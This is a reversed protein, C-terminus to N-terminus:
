ESSPRSTEIGRRADCRACKTRWVRRLIIMRTRERRRGARDAALAKALGTRALVIRAPVTRAVAHAAHPLEWDAVALGALEAPPAAVLLKGAVTVAALPVTRRLERGRAIM